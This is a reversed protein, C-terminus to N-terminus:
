QAAPTRSFLAKLLFPSSMQAVRALGRGFLAPNRVLLVGAVVGAITVLAPHRTFFRKPSLSEEIRLELEELDQNLRARTEALSRRIERTSRRTRKM